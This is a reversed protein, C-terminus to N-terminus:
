PQQRTGLPMLEARDGPKFQARWLHPQDGVPQPQRIGTQVTRPQSRRYIGEIVPQTHRLDGDPGLTDIQHELAIRRDVLGRTCLVHAVIRHHCRAPLDHRDRRQSIYHQSGTGRFDSVALPQARDREPASRPPQAREPRPTGPVLDAHRLNEAM